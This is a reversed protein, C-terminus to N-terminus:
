CAPGKLSFQSLRLPDPANLCHEVEKLEPLGLCM